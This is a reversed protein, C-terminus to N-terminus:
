HDCLSIGGSLSQIRVRGDGAGRTGELRNGPGYRSRDSQQGFCDEIKGSFSRADYSYGAAAAAKITQHGSVTETEITGGRALRASLDISGSTTNLRAIRAPSLEASLKGNVTRADLEGAVNSISLDGSVGSVHLAGDQGGGRLRISGSVTKVDDNGSGLEADIEGSVTQLHQSGTVGRTTIGASVASADIESGRPVHVELRASGARGSSSLWSCSASGNTVCVHTRGSTSTVVVRQADGSLDADVSVAPKDWGTIVISGDINDIGVEGRPDAAVQQKFDRAHAAGAALAFSVGLIAARSLFTTM